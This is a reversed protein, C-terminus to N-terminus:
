RGDPQQEQPLEHIQDVEGSAGSETAAASTKGESVM